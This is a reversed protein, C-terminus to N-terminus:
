QDTEAWWSYECDNCRYRYRADPGIDFVRYEVHERGCKPCSESSTEWDDYVASAYKEYLDPTDPM